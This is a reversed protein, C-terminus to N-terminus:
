LAHQSFNVWVFDWSGKIKVVVWASPLERWSGVDRGLRAGALVLALQHHEGNWTAARM